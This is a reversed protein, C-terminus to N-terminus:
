GPKISRVALQGYAQGPAFRPPIPQIIKRQEETLNCLLEESPVYEFRSRLLAPSYRYLVIRRHGPNARSASGHTIADTFMLADGAKLYMEVMGVQEGAAADSRYVEELLKPHRMASKHSGPILTTPGDGPGIDRLAMIINIQGVMWEGTNAQRFTMYSIPVAGGSHIGIYGGSGRINLFNEHISLGNDPHIWHRCRHIWAPYTILRRFVPGAEIINQFNCGDAGSYTHTEVHGIWAGSDRTLSRRDADVYDWHDDAWQNMERLDKPAIANKLVLYGNLDFLYDALYEDQDAAEIWDRSM